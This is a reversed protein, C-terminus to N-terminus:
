NTAFRLDDRADPVEMLDDSGIAHACFAFERPTERLGGLGLDAKFWQREADILSILAMSSGCAESAMRVLSDFLPERATDLIHLGHLRTLRATEGPDEQLSM